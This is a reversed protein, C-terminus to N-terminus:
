RLPDFVSDFFNEPVDKEDLARLLWEMGRQEKLIGPSGARSGGAYALALASGALPYFAGLEISRRLTGVADPYRRQQMEVLGLRYFAGTRV